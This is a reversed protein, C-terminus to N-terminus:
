RRRFQSWSRGSARPTTKSSNTLSKLTGDKEYTIGSYQNRWRHACRSTPTQARQHEQHSLTVTADGDRLARHLVRVNNGAFHSSMQWKGTNYKTNHGTHRSHLETAISKARHLQHAAGQRRQNRHRICRRHLKRNDAALVVAAYKQGAKLIRDSAPLCRGKLRDPQM